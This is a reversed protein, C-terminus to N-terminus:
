AWEVERGSSPSAKDKPSQQAARQRDAFAAQERGGCEAERQCKICHTAYPVAQLRAMPIPKGCGDCSGYRRERMRELAADIAALERSEVTALQSDLEDQECDLAADVSDGVGRDKVAIM